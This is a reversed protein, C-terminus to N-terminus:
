SMTILFLLPNGLVKRLEKVTCAAQVPGHRGVLYVKRAAM